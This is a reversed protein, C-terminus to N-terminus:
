CATESKRASSATFNQINNQLGYINMTKTDFERNLYYFQPKNPNKEYEYFYTNQWNQKSFLDLLDYM